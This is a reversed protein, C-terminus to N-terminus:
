GNQEKFTISPYTVKAVEAYDEDLIYLTVTGKEGSGSTMNIKFPFQVVSGDVLTTKKGNQEVVIKVPEGEKYDKPADIAQSCVYVKGDDAGSVTNTDPTNSIDEITEVTETLPPDGSGVSIVLTITNGDISQSIVQGYPVDASVVEQTVVTYGESQLAQVASTANQGSYDDPNGSPEASTEKSETEAQNGGNQSNQNNQNDSSSSSGNDKKCVFLTVQSGPNVSTGGQPSTYIVYGDPVVENSYYQSSITLGAAQLEAIADAEPIAAVDPVSVTGEGSSIYYTVSTGKAVSSGAAPTQGMVQGAPYTNSARNGGNTGSIGKEQLAAAAEEATKGRLDPIIIQGAAATEGTLKGTTEKTEKKTESESATETVTTTEQKNGSFVKRISNINLFGAANGVLVVVIALILVGVVM